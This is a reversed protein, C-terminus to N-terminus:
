IKVTICFRIWRYHVLPYIVQRGPHMVLVTHGSKDKFSARYIKGTESEGAIDSQVHFFDLKPDVSLSFGGIHVVWELFCKVLSSRYLTDLDM